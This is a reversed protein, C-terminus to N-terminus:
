ARLGIRCNTAHGTRSAAQGQGNTYSTSPRVLATYGPVCITQQITEQHVDPNLAEPPVERLVASPQSVDAPETPLSTCGACLTLAGALPLLRFNVPALKGRVADGAEPPLSPVIAGM